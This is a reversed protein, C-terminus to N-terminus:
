WNAVVRVVIRFVAVCTYTYLIQVYGYMRVDKYVHMGYGLRM